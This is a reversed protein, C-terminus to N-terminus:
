IRILGKISKVKKAIESHSAKGKEKKRPKVTGNAVGITYIEYDRQDKEYRLDAMEKIREPTMKQKSLIDIKTNIGKLEEKLKVEEISEKSM